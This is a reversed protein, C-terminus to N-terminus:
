QGRAAGDVYQEPHEFFDGWEPPFSAGTPLLRMLAIGARREADLIAPRELMRGGKADVRARLDEWFRLLRGEHEGQRVLLGEVAMTTLIVYDPTLQWALADEGGGILYWWHETVQNVAAGYFTMDARNRRPELFATVARTVPAALAPFLANGALERPNGQVWWRGIGADDDTLGRLLHEAHRPRGTPAPWMGPLLREMMAEHPGGDFFAFVEGVAGLQAAMNLLHLEDSFVDHEGAILPAYQAVKAAELLKVRQARPVKAAKDLYDGTFSGTLLQTNIRTGGAPPPSVVAFLLEMVTAYAAGLSIGIGFLNDTVQLAEIVNSVGPLRGLSRLQRAARARRSFPNLRAQTWVEKCLASKLVVAPVGAALADAPGSCLAAYIPTAIMGFFNFLNLIDAALVLWGVVPVARLGIRPAAWLILRGVTALTAVFDQTNDIATMIQGIALSWGPQTSTAAAQRQAIAKQIAMVIAPDMQKLSGTKLAKYYATWDAPTTATAPALHIV